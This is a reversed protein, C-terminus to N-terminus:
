RPRALALHTFRPIAAQSAAPLGRAQAVPLTVINSYYSNFPINPDSGLDPWCGPLIIYLNTDGAPTSPPVQINLQYLGVYGPTLGAYLINAPTGVPVFFSYDAGLTVILSFCAPQIAAPGPAPAGDTIQGSVPGLGTAYVVISEGPAAPNAETVLSYDSAHQIAGAGGPLTFIGPAVQQPLLFTSLGQYRVEVENTVAEFPVQFNIQQMGVPNDVPINAVALIPAPIGDVLISVGALETPLPNGSAVVTGTVNLGHLFLSALGGPLPLGPNFSAGNTLGNPDFQLPNGQPAIKMVGVADTPSANIIRGTVDAGLGTVYVNGASDLAVASASSGIILAGQNIISPLATPAGLFTSWLLASGAPNLVSLFGASSYYGEQSSEAYVFLPSNALGVQLANLIPFDPSVTGGSIYANGASDVAIGAGTEATSGGLYTAYILKTANANFKAVFATQGALIPFAPSGPTWKTQFAGSTVPLDTSTTTGSLYANGSADVALGGVTEVGSGGFYTAYLLQNGNPNLKLVVADACTQGACQPQVAGATVPWAAYSTSAAVYANGAMDAAVMPATGLGLYTSYLIPQNGPFNSLLIRPNIKILFVDSASFSNAAVQLGVFVTSYAGPTTPFNLSQTTGALYLDGDPGLAISTGADGAGGFVGSNKLIGNPDLAALFAGAHGATSASGGPAIAFDTGDTTGTIFADGAADVAIGAPLPMPGPGGSGTIYTSYLLTSGDPSVKAVFVGETYLPPAQESSNVLPFNNSYTTGTTYANGAADIAIARPVDNYTTQFIEFSVVGSAGFGASYVLQPDIVLARHHDYAGVHFRVQGGRALVFSGSIERRHGDAIQYICPKRHRIEGGATQLVLDGAADLRLRTAGTFSFRILSPDAGPAVLWDYEIERQNGYVSLEVGPFVSRYRIRAYNPVGTRWGSPDDGAYYNTKGPLLDVAAPSTRPLHMRLSGGHLFQMDIATDSLALKYQPAVAVYRFQPESPERYPEFHLPISLALAALALM